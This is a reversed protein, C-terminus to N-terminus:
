TTPPEPFGGNINDRTARMAQLIFEPCEADAALPPSGGFDAVPLRLGPCACLPELPILLALEMDGNRRPQLAIATPLGGEMMCCPCALQRCASQQQILTCLYVHGVHMPIRREADTNITATICCHHSEKDGCRASTTSNELRISSAVHREVNSCLAAIQLLEAYEDVRTCRDPLAICPSAGSQIKSLPIICRLLEAWCGSSGTCSDGSTACITRYVKAAPCGGTPAQSRCGTGDNGRFPYDPASCPGMGWLPPFQWRIFAVPATLSHKASELGNDVSEVWNRGWLM